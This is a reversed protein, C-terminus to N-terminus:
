NTKVVKKQLVLNGDKDLIRILYIGNPQGYITVDFTPNQINFKSYIKQGLMNYIEVVFPPKEELFQITFQGNNPNPYVSINDLEDCCQPGSVPNEIDKKVKPTASCNTTIGTTESCGHADKVTVTYSGNAVNMSTTTKANSWKYTYPLVGGSATVKVIGISNGICSDTIVPVIETPQSVTTFLTNSCGLNDTISITYTGASLGSQTYKTNGNSWSYSYPSTGGRTGVSIQGGSGGYCGVNVLVSVSDRLVAAPQTIVVVGTSSSCGNNDIVTVSYTGASLGSVTAASGVNPTWHYLYPPTGYKVGIAASGNNSGKCSVNHTATKVISDHIIGPQTISIVLLTTCRHADKVSVTYSGAALGTATNTTSVASTWTYAYPSTGGNVLVSANGKGGNCLPYTISAPSINIADPQTISIPSVTNSCGKQDTIIVSYSGASLGSATQLTSGNSWLFVYPFTGGKCGLSISGGNGGGCTINIQSTVSDRLLAPQIITATGTKSVGCNDTVTVTYTGATLIAPTTQSASVTSSGNSWKYTYPLNGGVPNVTAVGNNGGYCSVGTM